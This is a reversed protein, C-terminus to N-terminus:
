QVTPATPLTSGMYFSYISRAANQPSVTGSVVPWGVAVKVASLVTGDVGATSYPASAGTFAAPPGYTVQALYIATAISSSSTIPASPTAGNLYRGDVDYYFTVGSQATTPLAGNNSVVYANLVGQMRNFVDQAIASTRTDDGADRSSQIGLPMLGLVAILAFAIVGIALTVEILSFGHSRWIM